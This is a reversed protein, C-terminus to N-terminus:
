RNNKDLLEIGYGEELSKTGRIKTLMEKDEPAILHRKGNKTYNAGYYWNWIDKELNCELKYTPKM